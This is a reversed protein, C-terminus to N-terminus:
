VEPRILEKVENMSDIFMSYDSVSKEGDNLFVGKQDLRYCYGEDNLWIVSDFSQLEGLGALSEAFQTEDYELSIKKGGNIDEVTSNKVAYANMSIVGENTYPHKNKKDYVYYDESGQQLFSWETDGRNKYNIESGNHFEYRVQEGDTGMYVYTLFGDDRYKFTFEETIEGSSNDQMYMHGSDLEAYLKKARTVEAYGQIDKYSASGFTCGGLLCVSIAAATSKLLKNIIIIRRIPM